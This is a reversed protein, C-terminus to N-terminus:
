GQEGDGEDDHLVAILQIVARRAHPRLSVLGEIAERLQAVEQESLDVGEIARIASQDSGERNGSSEGPISRRLTQLKVAKDRELLRDLIVRPLNNAKQLMLTLEGDLEACIKVITEPNPITSENEIRSLHAYAVRARNSLETLSLGKAERLQRIYKGLSLDTEV